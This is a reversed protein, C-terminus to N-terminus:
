NYHNHGCTRFLWECKQLKQFFPSSRSPFFFLWVFLCAVDFQLFIVTAWLIFTQYLDACVCVYYYVSRFVLQCIDTRETAIQFASSRRKDTQCVCVPFFTHHFYKKERRIPRTVNWRCCCCHCYRVASLFCLTTATNVFKRTKVFCYFNMLDNQDFANHQTYTHTRDCEVLTTFNLFLHIHQQQKLERKKEARWAFGFQENRIQRHFFSIYLTNLTM